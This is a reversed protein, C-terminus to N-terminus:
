KNRQRLIAKHWLVVLPTANFISSYTGLIIGFALVSVFHRISEAGFVLLALLVIVTTLSTNISRALTQNTSEEAIMEIDSHPNKIFNERLRDYVVITDHVSFGMITLLATVFLADVEMWSYFYGFIAVFGTTILLDHLLAIIACLGFIWSSLPKPLKRFSYAIFIIIALSALIVAIISKTTLDKGITPGVNNYSVENYDGLEGMLKTTLQNHRDTNIDELRVIIKGDSGSKVQFSNFGESKLTNKTIEIANNNSSTYEIVSGGKYDIGFRLGWFSIAAISIIALIISIGLWLKYRRVIKIM